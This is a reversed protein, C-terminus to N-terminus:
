FDISEFRNRPRWTSLKLAQVSIINEDFHNRDTSLRTANNPKALLVIFFLDFLIGTQALRDAIHTVM